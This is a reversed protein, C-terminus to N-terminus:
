KLEGTIPVLQSAQERSLEAMLVPDGLVPGMTASSTSPSLSTRAGVGWDCDLVPTPLICWACSACEDPRCHGEVFKVGDLGEVWLPPFLTGVAEFM